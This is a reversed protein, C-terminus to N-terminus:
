KTIKNLNEQMNINQSLLFYIDIGIDSAVHLRFNYECFLGVLCVFELVSLYDVYNFKEDAEVFESSCKGGFTVTMKREQLYRVLVPNLSARVGMKYLKDIAITPDQCEFASSWDILATVVADHGDSEDCMALVKDLLAVMMHDTGTGPQNGFHTPDINPSIDEM